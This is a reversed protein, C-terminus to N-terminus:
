NIKNDSTNANKKFLMFNSYDRIYGNEDYKYDSLVVLISEKSLYKQKSWILPPIFLGEYPNNLQYVKQNRGDDCTISISGRLCILFQSCLKHAHNGRTQNEETGLNYFVRKIKFPIDDESEIFAIEGKIFKKNRILIKKVLSLNNEM